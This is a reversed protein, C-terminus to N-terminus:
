FIVNVNVAVDIVYRLLCIIYCICFQAHLTICYKQIKKLERYFGQFLSLLSFESYETM